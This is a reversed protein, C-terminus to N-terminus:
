SSVESDNTNQRLSHIERVPRNVCCLECQLWKSKKFKRDHSWIFNLAIRNICTLACHKYIICYLCRRNIIFGYNLVMHLIDINCVAYCDSQSILKWPDGYSNLVPLSFDYTSWSVTLLPGFGHSNLPRCICARIRYTCTNVCANGFQLLM